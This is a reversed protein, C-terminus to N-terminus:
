KLKPKFLEISYIMGVTRRGYIEYRFYPFVKWNRFKIGAIIEPTLNSIQASNNQLNIDTLGFEVGGGLFVSIKPSGDIVEKNTITTIINKDPCPFFTYKFKNIPYYEYLTYLSDGSDFKVTDYVSIIKGNELSDLLKGYWEKYVSLSDKIISLQTTDKLVVYKIVPNIVEITDVPLQVYTTDTQISTYHQRIKDKGFIYTGLILVIILIFGYKFIENSLIM